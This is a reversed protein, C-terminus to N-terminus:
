KGIAGIGRHNISKTKWNLFRNWLSVPIFFLRMLQCNGAEVMKKASLLKGKELGENLGQELGKKLGQEVGQEFKEQYSMQLTM